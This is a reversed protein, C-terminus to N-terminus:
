DDFNRRVEYEGQPLRDPFDPIAGSFRKVLEEMTMAPQTIEALDGQGVPFVIVEAKDLGIWDPPLEVTLSSGSVDMIKRLAQMVM